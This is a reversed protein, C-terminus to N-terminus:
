TWIFFINLQLECATEIGSGTKNIFAAQRPQKQVKSLYVTLNLENLTKSEVDGFRMMFLKLQYFRDVSNFNVKAM